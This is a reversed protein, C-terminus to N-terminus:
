YFGSIYIKMLVKTSLVFLCLFKNVLDLNRLSNTIPQLTVLFFFDCIFIMKNIGDGKAKEEEIASVALYCYKYLPNQSNLSKKLLLVLLIKIFDPTTEVSIM